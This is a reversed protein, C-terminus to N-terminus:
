WKAPRDGNLKRQTFFDIGVRWRVEARAWDNEAERLVNPNANPDARLEDVRAKLTEKELELKRVAEGEDKNLDLKRIWEAKASNEVVKDYCAIGLVIGAGLLVAAIVSKQFRSIPQVPLSIDLDLDRDDSDDSLTTSEMLAANYPIAGM